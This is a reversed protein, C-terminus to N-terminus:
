LSYSAGSLVEKASELADIEGRRAITRDKFYQLLWSCEAQLQAMFQAAAMSEKKTDKQSRKEAQLEAELESKVVEAETLAKTDAAKKKTSDKILGEYTEQGNKEGVEAQTIQTDLDKILLSIMQIVGSSEESKKSYSPVEPAPPPKAASASTSRRGTTMDVQVFSGADFADYIADVPPKPPPTTTTHLQPTYFQRLRNIAVQLLQKAAKNDQTSSLYNEHEQKRQESAEAVEQDLEALGSTLEAMKEKVAVLGEEADEIARAITSTTRNLEKLKDETEDYQDQCYEKKTEDGTQEEEIVRIMDDVMKIVKDMGVTNGKLALGIFDLRQM